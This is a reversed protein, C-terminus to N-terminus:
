LENLIEKQQATYGEFETAYPVFITQPTHLSRGHRTHELIKNTEKSILHKRHVEGTGAAVVSYTFNFGGPVVDGPYAVWCKIIMHNQHHMGGTQYGTVIREEHLDKLDEVHDITTQFTELTGDVYGKKFVKLAGNPVELPGKIVNGEKDFSMPIDTRKWVYNTTTTVESLIETLRKNPIIHDSARFDFDDKYGTELDEYTILGTYDLYGHVMFCKTEAHDVDFDAAPIKVINKLGQEYLFNRFKGLDKAGTLWGSHIVFCWGKDPQEANLIANKVHEHYVPSNGTKSSSANKSRAFFIPNGIPIDYPMEKETTIIVNEIHGYRNILKDYVFNDVSILILKSTEHLRNIVQEYVEWDLRRTTAQIVGYRTDPMTFDLTELMEPHLPHMQRKSQLDNMIKDKLAQLGSLKNM